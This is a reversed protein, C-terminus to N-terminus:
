ASPPARSCRSLVVIESPRLPEIPALTEQFLLAPLVIALGPNTSLSSSLFHCAPCDDGGGPGSETHLFNIGLTIAAFAGLLLIRLGARTRVNTM